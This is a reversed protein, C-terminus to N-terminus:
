PIRAATTALIRRSRREQVFGVITLADRRWDGALKVDVRLTAGAAANGASELDRVVVAHTLTRGQNEGRKVETRLHDETVAVLAEAGDGRTLPPLDGPTLAVTARDARAGPEITMALTGHRRAIAEAIARRAAAGDSGVFAIQGDVVMQPTYVSDLRLHDAYLQQRNTFLPSSFRDKWGLRDWYDVHEGLGVVVAGTAPQTAILQEFFRDAAPCSSCGEATFLEVLVPVAQRQDNSGDAVVSCGVAVIVILARRM